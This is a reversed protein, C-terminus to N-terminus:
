THKTITKLHKEPTKKAFTESAHKLHKMQRWVYTTLTADRHKLLLDPTADREDSKRSGRRPTKEEKPRRSPMWQAGVGRGSARSTRPLTPFKHWFHIPLACALAHQFRLPSPHGSSSTCLPSRAGVHMRVRTFLAAPVPTWVRTDM